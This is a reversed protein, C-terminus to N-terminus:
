RSWLRKMGPSVTPPQVQQDTVVCAGVAREVLCRYPRVRSYGLCQGLSLALTGEVLDKAVLSQGPDRRM